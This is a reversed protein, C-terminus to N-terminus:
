GRRWLSLLLQDRRRRWWLRRRSRAHPDGLLLADRLAAPSLRSGLEHDGIATHCPRGAAEFAEFTLEPFERRQWADFAEGTPDESESLGATPGYLFFPRGSTLAYFSATMVRNSTVAAHSRILARLKPLFEPNDDRHGMTTTAFGRREFVDRCSAQEHEVWYLCVTVPGWGLVVLAELAAIHATMSVALRAREWGHFPMVLLSRDGEEPGRDVEESLYCFPSGITVLETFGAEDAVQRNRESWVAKPGPRSLSSKPLGPGSQWGHQIQVPIPTNVPLGCYTLVIDAHGYHRNDAFM